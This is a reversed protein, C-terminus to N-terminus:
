KSRKNKANQKRIKDRCKQCMSGYDVEGGCIKCPERKKYVHFASM